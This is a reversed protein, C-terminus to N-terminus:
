ARPRCSTLVYPRRLCIREPMRVSAHPRARAARPQYAQSATWLVRSATRTRPRRPHRSPRAQPRAPASQPCVYRAVSHRVAQRSAAQPAARASCALQTPRASAPISVTRRASTSSSSSTAARLTQVRECSAALAPRAMASLCVYVILCTLARPVCLLHSVLCALSLCAVVRAFTQRWGGSTCRTSVAFTRWARANKAIHHPRLAHACQTM